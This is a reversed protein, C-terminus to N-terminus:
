PGWRLLFQQIGAETGAFCAHICVAECSHSLLVTLKLFIYLPSLPKLLHVVTFYWSCFFSIYLGVTTYHVSAKCKTHPLNHPISPVEHSVDPSWLPEGESEQHSLLDSRPGLGYADNRSARFNVEKSGPRRKQMLEERQSRERYRSRSCDIPESRTFPCFSLYVMVRLEHKTGDPRTERKPAVSFYIKFFCVGPRLTTM